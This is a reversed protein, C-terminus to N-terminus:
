DSPTGQAAAPQVQQPATGPTGAPATRSRGPILRRLLGQRKAASEQLPTPVATPAAAAPAPVSQAEHIRTAPEKPQAPADAEETADSAAASDATPAAGDKTRVSLKARGKQTPEEPKGAEAGSVKDPEPKASELPLEEGASQKRLPAGAAAKEAAPVSAEAGDSASAAASPLQTPKVFKLIEGESSVSYILERKPEDDEAGFVEREIQVSGNDKWSTVFRFDGGTSSAEAESENGIQESSVKCSLKLSADLKVTKVAQFASTPSEAATPAIVLYQQTDACALVALRKGDASFAESAQELELSQTGLNALFQHYAELAAIVETLTALGFPKGKFAPLKKLVLPFASGGKLPINHTRLVNAGHDSVELSTMEQELEQTAGMRRTPAVLEIQIARGSEANMYVIGSANKAVNYVFACWPSSELWMPNDLFRVQTAELFRQKVPATSDGSSIRLVMRGSYREAQGDVVPLLRDVIVAHKGDPSKVPPLSEVQVDQAAAGFGTVAVVLASALFEVCKRMTQQISDM